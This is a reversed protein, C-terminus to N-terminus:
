FDEEWGALEAPHQAFPRPQTVTVAGDAAVFLSNYAANAATAAFSYGYTSNLPAWFEVTQLHRLSTGATSAVPLTRQRHDVPTLFTYEM